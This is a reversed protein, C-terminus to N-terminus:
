SETRWKELTGYPLKFDIEYDAAEIGHAEEIHRKLTASFKGCIHCMADTGETTIVGYHGFPPADKIEDRREVFEAEVTSSALYDLADKKAKYVGDDEKTNINFILQTNPNLMKDIIFRAHQAQIGLLKVNLEEDNQDARLVKQSTEVADLFQSEIKAMRWRSIFQYGTSLVRRAIPYKELWNKITRSSVGLKKAVKYRPEGSLILEIAEMVQEPLAEEGSDVQEWLLDAVDRWSMMALEDIDIDPVILEKSM